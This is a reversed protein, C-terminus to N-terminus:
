PYLRIGLLFHLPDSNETLKSLDIDRKQLVKASSDGGHRNHEPKSAFTNALAIQGKCNYQAAIRRLLRLVLRCVHRCVIFVVQSIM